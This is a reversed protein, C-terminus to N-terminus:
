MQSIHEPNNEGRIKQGTFPKECDLIRFNFLRINGQICYRYKCPLGFHLFSIPRPTVFEQPGFTRFRFTM